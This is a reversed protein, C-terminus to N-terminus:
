RTREVRRRMMIARRWIFGRWLMVPLAPMIWPCFVRGHIGTAISIRAPRHAISNMPGSGLGLAGVDGAAQAMVEPVSVGGKRLHAMFRHEQTLGDVSRLTQHHRKLIFTGGEAEVRAAASFPRPSHWPLAIV